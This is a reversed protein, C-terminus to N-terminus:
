PGPGRDEGISANSSWDEPEVRAPARRRGRKPLLLLVIPALLLAPIVSVASSQQAKPFLNIVFCAALVGLIFWGLINRGRFYALVAPPLGMAALGITLTLAHPLDSSALALM